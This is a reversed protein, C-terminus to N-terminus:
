GYNWVVTKSARKVTERSVPAFGGLSGHIRKDSFRRRMTCVSESFPIKATERSIPAFGGLSGHLRKDSFRRRM